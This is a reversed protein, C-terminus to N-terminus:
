VAIPNDSQILKNSLSALQIQHHLVCPLLTESPEQPFISDESFPHRPFVELFYQLSDGIAVLLANAM